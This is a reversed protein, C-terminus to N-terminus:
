LESMGLCLLGACAADGAGCESEDATGKGARFCELRTCPGTGGPANNNMHLAVSKTSWSYVVQQLHIYRPKTYPPIPHTTQKPIHVASFTSPYPM